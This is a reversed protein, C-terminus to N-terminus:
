LLLVRYLWNVKIFFVLSWGILWIGGLKIAVIHKVKRQFEKTVFKQHM